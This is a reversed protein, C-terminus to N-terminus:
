AHRLAERLHPARQGAHDPRVEAMNDVLKPVSEAFAVKFGYHIAAYYGATRELSHSLPLFSLMLKEDFEVRDLVM